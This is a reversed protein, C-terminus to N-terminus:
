WWDDIWQKAEQLTGKWAVLEGQKNYINYCNGAGDDHRTIIFSRYEVPM